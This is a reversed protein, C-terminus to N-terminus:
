VAIRFVAHHAQEKTVTSVFEITNLVLYLLAKLLYYCSSKLSVQLWIYALIRGARLLTRRHSEFLLGHQEPSSCVTFLFSITM